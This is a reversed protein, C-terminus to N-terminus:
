HDAAVVSIYTWKSLIVGMSITMANIQKASRTVAHSATGPGAGMLVGAATPTADTGSVPEDGAQDDIM